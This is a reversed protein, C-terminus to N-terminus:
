EPFEKEHVNMHIVKGNTLTFTLLTRIRHFGKLGAAGPNLHLHGFHPDRVVKLIHSHGCVFIDPQCSNLARIAAQNYKGPYGAIHRMCVRVGETTFCLEEPLTRRVVDNDINGYVARVAKNHEKLQDYFDLDGIDGAHWVEDAQLATNLMWEDSFFHTDSILCIKKLRVFIAFPCRLM